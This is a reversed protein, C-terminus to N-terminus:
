GRTDDASGITLLRAGSPVQQGVQVCVETVVGAHPAEVVHEMKMAELVVLPQNQSVHQGDVIAIKVVRGPMPATLRGEGGAAGRDSATEEISLPAPRQFRYSRGAWEVVRREAYDWVTAAQSGVSLRRRHTDGDLLRVLWTQGGVAVHVGDGGLDATVHASHVRGARSWEAPQDLRGLRWGTRAQWPDGDVPPTLADVASVAAMAPSPVDAVAEAIRQEELFGTHLEGALFAPHEVTALLLDVNDAVGDIWVERLAQALKTAASARDVDHAIVKALLSDYYPSVFTGEKIWTDTRVVDPRNFRQITGSSPLFGNLADEAIIRV